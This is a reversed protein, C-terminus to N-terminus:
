DGPPKALQLPKLGAKSRAYTSGCYPCALTRKRIAGRALIRGCQCAWGHRRAPNGVVIAFAPVDRTVVAGAGVIAYAGIGVGCVITANAGISAGRGVRTDKFEDKRPWRSRPTLVNTFVAAPGVFVDDDLTVGDYVAVNNKIKVHRGIRVRGEVFVNASLQAHDGISAGSLVVCNQWIRVGAGIKAGAAVDATPHIKAASM